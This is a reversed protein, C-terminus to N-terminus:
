DLGARLEDKLRQTIDELNNLGMSLITKLIRHKPVLGHLQKHTQNIATELDDADVTQLYFTRRTMGEADGRGRRPKTATSPPKAVGVVPTPAAAPAPEPPAEAPPAYRGESLLEAANQAESLGKPPLRNQKAM